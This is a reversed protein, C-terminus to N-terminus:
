IKGAANRIEEAIKDLLKMDAPPGLLTTVYGPYDGFSVTDKSHIAEFKSKLGFAPYLKAHLHNIALGEFVLHVRRVGLGIELIRSVKRTARIIGSIEESELDFLYSQMHKKPIVLAQGRTNPFKDLFALYHEDEWLKAAPARGGAIDCFICEKMM